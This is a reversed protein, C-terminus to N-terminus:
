SGTRRRSVGPAFMACGFIYACGPLCRVIRVFSVFVCVVCVCVSRRACLLACPLVRQAACDENNKKASIKLTGGDPLNGSWTKAKVSALHALWDTVNMDPVVWRHGDNWRLEM